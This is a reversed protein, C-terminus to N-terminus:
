RDFDFSFLNSFSSDIIIGFKLYFLFAGIKKSSKPKSKTTVEEFNHARKARSLTSIM